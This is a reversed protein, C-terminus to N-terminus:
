VDDFSEDTRDLKFKPPEHALGRNVCGPSICMLVITGHREKRVIYGQCGPCIFPYAIEALM